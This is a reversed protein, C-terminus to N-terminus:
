REGNRNFAALGSLLMMRKAPLLKSRGQALVRMLEADTRDAAIYRVARQIILSGALSPIM